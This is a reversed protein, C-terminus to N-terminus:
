FNLKPYVVLFGVAAVALVALVIAIWRIVRLRRRREFHYDRVM